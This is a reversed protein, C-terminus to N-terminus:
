DKAKRVGTRLPKQRQKFYGTEPLDGANMPAGKEWYERFSPNSAESFGLRKGVEIVFEFDLHGQVEQVHKPQKAYAAQSREMTGTDKIKQLWVKWDALAAKRKDKSAELTHRISSKMDPPLQGGLSFEM